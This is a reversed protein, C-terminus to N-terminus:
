SYLLHAAPSSKEQVIINYRTINKGGKAGGVSAEAPLSSAFLPALFDLWNLPYIGRITCDAPSNANAYDNQGFSNYDFIIRYMKRLGLLRQIKSKASIFMCPDKHIGKHEKHSVFRLNNCTLVPLKLEM